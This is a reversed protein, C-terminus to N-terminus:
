AMKVMFDPFHVYQIKVPEQIPPISTQLTILLRAAIVSYKQVNIVSNYQKRFQDDSIKEIEEKSKGRM